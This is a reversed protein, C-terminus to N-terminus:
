LIPGNTEPLVRDPLAISQPATSILDDSSAIVVAVTVTVTRSNGLSDNKRVSDAIFIIDSPKTCVTYM